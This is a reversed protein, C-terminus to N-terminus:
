LVGSATGKLIKVPVDQKAFWVALLFHRLDGSSTGQRTPGSAGM